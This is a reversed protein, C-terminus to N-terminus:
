RAIVCFGDFVMIRKMSFSYFLITIIIDNDNQRIMKVSFAFKQFRVVVVM